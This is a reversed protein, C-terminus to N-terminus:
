SNTWPFKGDYGKVYIWENDDLMKKMKEKFENNPSKVENYDLAPSRKILEEHNKIFEDFKTYVRAPNGAVCSNPPIDKNVVSGAAVLVNPGITVGPLIIVDTGFYCNDKINVKGLRTYGNTFKFPTADHAIIVVGNSLSCNDGISILYPYSSDINVRPMITVNKGLTLGSAIRNNLKQKSSYQKIRIITKRILLLILNL